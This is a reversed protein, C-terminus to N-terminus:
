ATAGLKDTPYGLITVTRGSARDSYVFAPGDIRYHGKWDIALATDTEEIHIAEPEGNRALRTALQDSRDLLWPMVPTLQSCCCSVLPLSGAMVPLPGVNSM